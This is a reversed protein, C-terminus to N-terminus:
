PTSVVNSHSSLNTDVYYLLSGTTTGNPSSIDTVGTTSEMIFTPAAPTGLTHSYSTLMLVVNSMTPRDDAKDQVCLLGIHICRLIEDASYNEGLTPDVLELANGDRWLKWAHSLLDVSPGSLHFSITKLGSIIELLLVGFSYVDSKTSFKGHLGYEPAM